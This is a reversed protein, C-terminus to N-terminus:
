KQKKRIEETYLGYRITERITEESCGEMQEILLQLEPRERVKMWFDLLRQDNSLAELIRKRGSDIDELYGAKAMLDEYTTGLVPALKALFTPKPTFIEREIQSIYGQNVGARKALENM